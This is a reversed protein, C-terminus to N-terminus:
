NVRERIRLERLLREKMEDALQIQGELANSSSRGVTTTGGAFHALAV